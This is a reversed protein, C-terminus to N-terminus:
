SKDPNQIIEYKKMPVPIVPAWKLEIELRQAFIEASEIEGHVLFIQNPKKGKGFWEILESGDAHVSFGEIKVISAKVDVLQGHMKIKEAGNELAHGRTGVAQYGVLLVSHLPNPLMQKLHHVVRGGTGMGSASVIICSNKPNNLKMSDEVTKMEQLTDPGFPDEHAFQRIFDPRIEIDGSAIASRYHKLSTLAMPSDVFVPVRPIQQTDMLERLKMLIVETRDVAFAPILISGGRNITKNIADTFVSSPSEHVRAGYTSETILASIEGDPYPDPAVLIPHQNRGLDGTFLLKEGGIELMVFAAGLIHGAPFLTIFTNKAIQTKVRFETEKFKTLTKDVDDETYLPKPSDHKSYGKKAAYKADEVQIRASDKMVVEALKATNSTLYVPNRYGQRVLLPLYGCHDLHAHTLVVADITSTDVPFEDWNKLRLQKLGQFLGADILVKAEDSEVLFRSGTVTEAGGLFTISVKSM